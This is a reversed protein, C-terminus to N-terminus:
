DSNGPPDPLSQCTYYGYAGSGRRQQLVQPFVSFFQPSYFDLKYLGIGGGEPAAPDRFLPSTISAPPAPIYADHKSGVTHRAGVAIVHREGVSPSSTM